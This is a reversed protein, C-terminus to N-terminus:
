ACVNDAPWRLSFERKIHHHKGLLWHLKHNPRSLQAALLSTKQRTGIMEGVRCIVIFDLLEFFSM